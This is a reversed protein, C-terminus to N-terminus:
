HKQPMQVQTLGCSVLLHGFLSHKCLDAIFFVCLCVTNYTHNVLEVYLIFHKLMTSLFYIQLIFAFPIYETWGM